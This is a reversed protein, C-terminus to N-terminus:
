RKDKYGDSQEELFFKLNGKMDKNWIVPELYNLEDKGNATFVIGKDDPLDKIIALLEKKTIM